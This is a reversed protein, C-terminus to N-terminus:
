KKYNVNVVFKFSVRRSATLDVNGNSDYVPKSQSCGVTKISKALKSTDTGIESSLCYDKVTDARKTSLPLGGKYTTGSVPAIHGEIVTKEIFGDYKDSYVISTYSKVFKKLFDKGDKSLEASDGGFLVTSDMAIEGSTRNIQVSIGNAKFEKYLDDYLDKKTDAITNLQDDTLSSIDEGENKLIRSERDASSDNYYYTKEGDFLIMSFSNFYNQGNSNTVFAFQKSFSNVVKGNEDKTDFYVTFKGDDTIKYASTDYYDGSRQLAYNVLSDQKSVFCDANDILPTKEASYGALTTGGSINSTFSYSVLDLKDTGDSLDLHIGKLSFQYEFATTEVKYDFKGNKTADSITTFKIKNGNVEYVCPVTGTKDNIIFELVAVEKDTISKYKSESLPLNETGFYVAIPISSIDYTGNNFDVSKSKLEKKLKKSDKEINDVAYSGHLMKEDFKVSSYVSDTDVSKASDFLSSSDTDKEAFYWVAAGNEESSGTDSKKSCAAFSLALTIALIISLTKKM